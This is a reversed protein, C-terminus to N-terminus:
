EEDDDLFNGTAGEQIAELLVLRDEESLEENEDIDKQIWSLKKQKEEIQQKEESNAVSIDVQEDYLEESM